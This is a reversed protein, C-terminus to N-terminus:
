IDIILRKRMICFSAFASFVAYDSPVAKAIQNVPYKADKLVRRLERWAQKGGIVETIFSDPILLSNNTLLDAVTDPSKPITYGMSEFKSRNKGDVLHDFYLVLGSLEESREQLKVLAAQLFAPVSFDDGFARLLGVDDNYQGLYYPTRLDLVIKERSSFKELDDLVAYLIDTDGWWESVTILTEIEPDEPAMLSLTRYGGFQMCWSAVALMEPSDSVDVLPVDVGIWVRGTSGDITIKPGGPKIFPITSKESPSPVDMISGVIGFGACGVICPTDMARAVVAAHSTVGGTQTLIGVANHMSKIDDPTTEHAVLICPETCNVAIDCSLVPVGTVVGPCAPLGVVHPEVDFDPSVVPRQAIKYQESTIRTLATTTSISDEKVLDYVIKIAAHASRKGVRSQLIYLKSDQVTFEVDVMDYYRSELQECMHLLEGICFPTELETKCGYDIILKEPTRIGAVIDEGQANLLYEAVIHREGTSPNRTFLVGSGSTEGMNGFVMTQVIVATGMNEDIDNLKRYYVARENMWSNFVTRIAANMQLEFSDPFPIGTENRFLTLYSDILEILASHSLEADTKVGNHTKSETLLVEFKAHPIGFSTSGLMQILRRRCDRASRKGLRSEWEEMNDSCLGVNLITDMMGPMSVPAGSRVSLLPFYGLKESLETRNIASEEVLDVIFNNLIELKEEDFPHEYDAVLSRWENCINTTIIWGPPVPLGWSCMKVLSAGKGGLVTVTKPNCLPLDWDCKKRNFKYIPKFM